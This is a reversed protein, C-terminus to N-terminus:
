KLTQQSGVNKFIKCQNIDKNLYKSDLITM